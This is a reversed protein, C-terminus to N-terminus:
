FVALTDLLAPLSGGRGAALLALLMALATGALLLRTVRPWGTHDALRALDSSCM